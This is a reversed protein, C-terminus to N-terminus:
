GPLGDWGKQQLEAKIEQMRRINEQILSITQPTLTTNVCPDGNGDLTVMGSRFLYGYQVLTVVAPSNMKLSVTSKRKFFMDLLLMQQAPHLAEFNELAKSKGTRQAFLQRVWKGVSNLTFCLSLVLLWVAWGSWQNRIVLAQEPLLCEPFCLFAATAAVLIWSKTNLMEFVWSLVKGWDSM